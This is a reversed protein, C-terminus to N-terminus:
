KYEKGNKEDKSALLIRADVISLGKEYVIIPNLDMEKIEPYSEIIDSVTVLLNVISEKDAPPMGRVGNLIPASKIESLMDRAANKSLPLVRFSVDKVVEVLIGGLGFMIVPGFQDDIKTGIIIETGAPMMPSVLVGQIEANKNYNKANELIEKYASRVESENKLKLKVCGADTKHLIEKSVIKLVVKGEFSKAFAVAEEESRALKDMTVPAKHLHLLKKAESEYLMNRDVSIANEIINKGEQIANRGWNFVFKTSKVSQEKTKGYTCLSAICKCSIDLSDYTPIGYYRLLELPHSNVSNYLSQLLIPKDFKKVLKGMQHAADEEIFKLKEFFRIGYGGFLGVILLGGVNEDSLLIRSCDAFVLPNSDTGGAVDVPNRLSANSPLIERLEDITKQQFQPIEIGYDRLLDVALTAHGGGDALIAIKNNKILPLNALTEAVPFLEDSNEITVIGAREFASRAVESIGALAGTHSGASAKGEVTRGSKLLVIPKKATTQYAEQLFRRGERMGEVYMMIVDTNSDERLFELYEHFKIDAENGVGIYYSFGSQSKLRAETIMHLAINGSQSLIAINGRPVNELGVLNLNQKVSIVGSTNPGIIRVKYKEAIDVLEKESSKGKNDVEGFGGSIIVIGQIGKRGCEEVLQPVLKSPTTILAIDVKENIDIVNKYTKLGLINEGKPNVPFIKGEFKDDILSKIARFGRKTEDLSAGLIAVSQPNFIRNLVMKKGEENEM